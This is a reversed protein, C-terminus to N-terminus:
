LLNTNQTELIASEPLWGSKGTLSKIQVWTAERARIEVEAGEPVEFLKASDTQPASQAEVKKLITGRPTTETTWHLGAVALSLFFLVCSVLLSINPKPKAGGELLVRQRLILFGFLSHLLWAFVGLVLVVMMQFPTKRLYEQSIAAVLSAHETNQASPNGKLAFQIAQAPEILGPSLWLARRWLGVALGVNGLKFESLGLNYLLVPNKPDQEVASRLVGSAENFQSSQYHKLGTNLLVDPNTPQAHAGAVFIPFTLAVLLNRMKM